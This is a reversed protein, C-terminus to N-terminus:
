IGFKKRFQQEFLEMKTGHVHGALHACGHIFLFGVYNEYTRDFKKCETVAQDLSIFIEGVNPELPFSLINAPGSKGKWDLHLKTATKKSPFVLSLEYKSGLIARAIVDWPVDPINRKTENTITVIPQNTKKMDSSRM